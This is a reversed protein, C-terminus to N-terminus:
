CLQVARRQDASAALEWHGPKTSVQVIYNSGITGTVPSNSNNRQREFCARRINGTRKRPRKTLPWSIKFDKLVAMHQANTSDGFQVPAVDSL